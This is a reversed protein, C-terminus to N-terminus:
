GNAGNDDIGVKEPGPKVEAVLEADILPGAHEDPVDYETGKKKEFTDGYGNMHPKLTKVKM